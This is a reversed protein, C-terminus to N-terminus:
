AGRSRRPKPEAAQAQALMADLQQVIEREIRDKFTGVLLGLKARLEFRDKSVDLTGVVGSREFRVEDGQRSEAYECQMGYDQEVLEAWRFAMRRAAALGLSHDRVIHLEAM